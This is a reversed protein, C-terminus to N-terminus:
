RNPERYLVKYLGQPYCALSPFRFIKSGIRIGIGGHTSKRIGIGIGRLFQSGIRIGNMGIRIPIKRSELELELEKFYMCLEDFKSLKACSEAILTTGVLYTPPFAVTPGSFHLMKRVSSSLETSHDIKIIGIGICAVTKSVLESELVRNLGIESDM